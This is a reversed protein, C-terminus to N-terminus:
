GKKRGKKTSDTTSRSVSTIKGSKIDVRYITKPEFNFGSPPHMARLNQSKHYRKAHELAIRAREEKGEPGFLGTGDGVFGHKSVITGDKENFVVCYNIQPEREELTSEFLIM